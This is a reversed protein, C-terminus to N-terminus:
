RRLGFGFLATRPQIIGAGFFDNRGRTGTASADCSTQTCARATKKIIQEVIAPTAAAGLQSYILAAIGAVHPTAMSTGQFSREDYHNFQPFILTLIQPDTESKRLTSQWVGGADGGARQDGGPAAIEVFSGSSSYYAHTLSSGLASVAMAGDISTAYNAPYQVPNGNEFENGAAIAVFTGKGVAYIIADQVATSPASSGISYNIVNAGSDAAYRIGSITSSDPCGGSSLPAYGPIGSASRSFQVDWYSACSKVSMIKANYAIGALMVGNNTDEGVTGSVHTGHGETDLVAISGFGTVFDHPSVLRGANLDPNVAFQPTYTVINSGDWTPANVGGSYTTVGTDVIAVTVGNAGANLDWAKPLDLASFNWQRTAYDPDSPVM